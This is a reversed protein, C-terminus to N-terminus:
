GIVPLLKLESKLAGPRGWATVSEVFWRRDTPHPRVVDFEAFVQGDGHVVASGKLQGAKDRWENYLAESGDFPDRRLESRDFQRPVLSLADKFGTRALEQRLANWAEELLPAELALRQSVADDTTSM